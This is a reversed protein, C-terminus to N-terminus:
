VLRIGIQAIRGHEGIRRALPDHRLTRDEYQAVVARVADVAAEVNGHRDAAEDAPDGFDGQRLMKIANSLPDPRRRVM